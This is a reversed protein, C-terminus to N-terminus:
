QPFQLLFFSVFREDELTLKWVRHHSTYREGDSTEHTVPENHQKAIWGQGGISNHLYHMRPGINKALWQEANPDLGHKLKITIM